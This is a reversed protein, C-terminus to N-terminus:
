SQVDTTDFVPDGYSELTLWECLGCERCEWEHSLEGGKRVTGPPIEQTTGCRPCRMHVTLMTGPTHPIVLSCWEGERLTDPRGLNRVLIMGM